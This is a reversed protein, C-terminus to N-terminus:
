QRPQRVGGFRDSGVRSPEGSLSKVHDLKKLSIALLVVVLILFFTKLSLTFSLVPAEAKAKRIGSAKHLYYRNTQQRQLQFLM